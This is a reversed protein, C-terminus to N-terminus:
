CLAFATHLTSTPTCPHSFPNDITTLHKQSIVGTEFDSIFSRMAAQLAKSRDRYGSHESARDFAELLEPPLSM